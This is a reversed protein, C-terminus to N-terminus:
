RESGRSPTPPPTVQEAMALADAAASRALRVDNHWYPQSAVYQYARASGLRAATNQPDVRLVSHFWLLAETSNHFAWSRQLAIDARSLWKEIVTTRDPKEARFRREVATPKRLVASGTRAFAPGPLGNMGFSICQGVLIGLPFSLATWWVLIDIM